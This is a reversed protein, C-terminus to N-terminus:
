DSEGPVIELKLISRLIVGCHPKFKLETDPSHLRLEEKM